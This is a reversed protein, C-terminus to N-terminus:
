VRDGDEVSRADLPSVDVSHRETAHDGLFECEAV